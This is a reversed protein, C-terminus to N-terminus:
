GAVSSCVSVSKAAQRFFVPRYSEAWIVMDDRQPSSLKQEQRLRTRHLSRLCFM